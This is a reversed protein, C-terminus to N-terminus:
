RKLLIQIHLSHRHHFRLLLIHPITRIMMLMLLSFIDRQNQLHIGWRLIFVESMTLSLPVRLLGSM